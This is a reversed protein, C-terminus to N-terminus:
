KPLGPLYPKDLSDRVALFIGTLNNCYILMNTFKCCCFIIPLLNKKRRDQIDSMPVFTVSFAQVSNTGTSSKPYVVRINVVAKSLHCLM